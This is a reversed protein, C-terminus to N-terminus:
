VYGRTLKRDMHVNFRLEMGRRLESRDIAGDRRLDLLRFITWFDRNGNSARPRAAEHFVKRLKRWMSVLLEADDASQASAAESQLTFPHITDPHEGVESAHVQDPQTRDEICQKNSLYLARCSLDDEATMLRQERERKLQERLKPFAKTHQRCRVCAQITVAARIEAARQQIYIHGRKRRTWVKFARQIACVKLNRYQADEKEKRDQSAREDLRQQLRRQEDIIRQAKTAEKERQRERERDEWTM